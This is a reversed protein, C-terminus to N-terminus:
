DEDAGEEEEKKRGILEPEAPGPVAETPATEVVGPKVVQVVVAEPHDLVTVGEPLDALQRVHIASGIDLETIRVTVFDPIQIAPCEVHLAHLQHELLGGALVGPATGRLQVPVNVRVRENADVRVFDLHRIYTSFTDWQVERILAQELKGDLDLEVVHAGSALIPRIDDEQLSIRVPDIKHGYVNAPILGKRRLRRCATTGHETRPAAPIRTIVAM